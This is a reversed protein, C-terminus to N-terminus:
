FSVFDESLLMERLIEKLKFQNTQFQNLLDKSEGFPEAAPDAAAPDIVRVGGYPQEDATTLKQFVQQPVAANSYVIDGRTMILNWTRAMVCSQVVPDTAMKDGMEALARGPNTETLEYGKRWALVIGSKLTQQFNSANASNPENTPLWDELMAFPVGEIPVNVSYGSGTPGNMSFMGADTFKALMPARHNWTAHCDACVTSENWEHFNVYKTRTTNCEGSISGFPWVSNYGEVPEAPINQCTPDGEEGPNAPEAVPVISASTSRCMFTEHLWRQRRFALNGFFVIHPAPDTLVGSPQIGQSTMSNYNNCAVPTFVNTVPNYTPCTLPEAGQGSSSFLLTQNMNNVILYAAFVAAADRSNAGDGMMANYSAAQPGDFADADFIHFVERYHEILMRPLMTNQTHDLLKDILATYVAPKEDEDADALAYVDTLKPLNGSLKLSAVRLAENYDVVRDDLETYVPEPANNNGTNNNGGPNQGPDPNSGNGSGNGSGTGSGSGSGSGSGQGSGPNENGVTPTPEEVPPPPCDQINGHLKYPNPRDCGSAALLLVASALVGRNMM